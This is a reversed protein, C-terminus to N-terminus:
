ATVEAPQKMPCELCNIGNRSNKTFAIWTKFEAFNAGSVSSKKLETFGLGACMSKIFEPKSKSHQFNNDKIYELYSDYAWQTPVRTSTWDSAVEDVFLSVTDNGKAFQEIADRSENTETFQSNGKIAYLALYLVFERFAKSPIFESRIRADAKDNDIHTDFVIIHMRRNTGGTQNAIKPLANTAQIVGACSRYSYADKGKGEVKIAGGTTLSNYNATDKIYVGAQVDDGIIVSKGVVQEM